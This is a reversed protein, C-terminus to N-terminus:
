DSNGSAAAKGVVLSGELAAIEAAKGRLAKDKALKDGAKFEAMKLAVGARAVARARVVGM